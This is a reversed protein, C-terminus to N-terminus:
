RCSEYLTNVSRAGTATTALVANASATPGFTGAETWLRSSKAFHHLAFGAKACHPLAPAPDIGCKMAISSPRSVPM